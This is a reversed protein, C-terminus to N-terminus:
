LKFLGNSNNLCVSNIASLAKETRRSGFWPLWRNLLYLADGTSCGWLYQPKRNVLPGTKKKRFNGLGVVTAFRRVVDEDTSTLQLLITTPKGQFICGEGEFLGATWAVETDTM